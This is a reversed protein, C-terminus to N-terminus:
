TTQLWLFDFHMYEAHKKLLAVTLVDEMEEVQFKSLSPIKWWEYQVPQLPKHLKTWEAGEGAAHEGMRRKLCTTTGVYWCGDELALQYLFM